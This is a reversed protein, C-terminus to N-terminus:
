RNAEVRVRRMEPATTLEELAAQRTFKLPVFAPFM